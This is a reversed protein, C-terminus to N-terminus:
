GRCDKASVDKDKKCNKSEPTENKSKAQRIKADPASFDPRKMGAKAM